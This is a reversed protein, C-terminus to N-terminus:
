FRYDVQLDLGASTSGATTVRGFANFSMWIDRTPHYSAAVKARFANQDAITSAPLTQTPLYAYAVPIAGTDRIFAQEYTVAISPDVVWGTGRAPEALWGISGILSQASQRGVVLRSLAPGSEAYGGFSSSVYSLGTTPGVALPGFEFLRGAEAAALTSFGTPSASVQGFSGTRQQSVADYGIGAVGRIFGERGVMQGYFASHFADLTTDSGLSASLDAEGHTYNLLGGLHAGDFGAFDLGATVGGLAQGVDIPLGAKTLNSAEAEASAFVSWPGTPAGSGGVPALLERGNHRIADLRTFTQEALASAAIRGLYTPMASSVSGSQVNAAIAGYTFNSTNYTPNGTAVYDGILQQARSTLHITDAFVSTQQCTSDCTQGPQLPLVRTLGFLSANTQLYNLYTAINFYTIQVGPVTVQQLLTNYAASSVAASARVTPTDTGALKYANTLSLDYVGLLIIRSVGASKLTALGSSVDAAAASAVTAAPQGRSAGLWINNTGIWVGAGTKPDTAGGAAVFSSVQGLFSSDGFVASPQNSTIAGGIAYNVGQTVSIDTRLVGPWMVPATRGGRGEDTLSDGFFVLTTLDYASAAHAYQGGVSFTALATLLSFSALGGCTWRTVGAGVDGERDLCLRGALRRM